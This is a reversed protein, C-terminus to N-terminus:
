PVAGCNKVEASSAPSRDAVSGPRKAEWSFAGPAWQVLPQIPELALIFATSSIFIDWRQLSDFYTAMRVSSDRSVTFVYPFFFTYISAHVDASSPSSSDAEWRAQKVRPLSVGTNIPQFTPHAASCTQASKDRGSILCRNKPQRARLRSPVAVPNHRSM